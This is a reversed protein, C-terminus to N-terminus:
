KKLLKKDSLLYADMIKRAIPAAVSSGHGGNEVIVAVAIQPKEVPAFAMFLAHDRLKKTVKDEEYEEDQAIGFVQATGTKGAITYSLGKALRHATGRIGHVVNKMGNVVHQWNLEKKVSYVGSVEPKINLSERNGPYSIKKVLHPKFRTGKLALAGTGSALQLPTVLLAGQGIGTILTEGPFWPMGRARRKWERSPMLGPKEGTSDIGTRSGFGFQKMFESMRDIGLSYALSYFYVDCSQTIAKDLDTKGHGTKKWDRYKRDENPLLYYGGCFTTQKHGVVSYELGALGFFPKTTSGPPYQGTLARNFLPRRWSDRLKSYDNFSIGNVFLNPDFSPMSVLALVEGNNPDLAVVSGREDKFLDEALRQLNSDITLHLNHGSVPPSEDLVRLTRGSANVEVRQFGVDGHLDNEYFKELGLKGIYSTGAYNAEDLQNLDKVDIRGVYGLAHVAHKGLPYNRTLRANIEVGEFKHLNVALRALEKDSLNLLLPVSEYPRRRRSSQRYKKIAYDSIEVYESLRKITDDLDSVQERIIELRYAPLNDALVVGNRDYILGRTPPLAKLRVRNSNSLTSFHDHEVVQLVYLRGLVISMLVLVIVASLILRRQILRTESYSDKLQERYAM